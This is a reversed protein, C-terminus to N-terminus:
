SNAQGGSKLLHPRLVMFDDAAAEVEALSQWTARAPTLVLSAGQKEVFVADVGVFALEKPIRVAQSRGNRFLKAKTSM